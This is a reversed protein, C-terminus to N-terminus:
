KVVIKNDKLELEIVEKTETNYLRLNKEAFLHKMYVARLDKNLQQLAHEISLYKSYYTVWANGTGMGYGSWMFKTSPPADQMWMRQLKWPRNTKKHNGGPIERDSKPKKYPRM